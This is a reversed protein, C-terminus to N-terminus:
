VLSQISSTSSKSLNDLPQALIVIMTLQRVAQRKSFLRRRRLSDSFRLLAWVSEIYKCRFIYPWRYSSQTSVIVAHFCCSQRVYPLENYPVDFLSNVVWSGFNMMAAKAAAVAFELLTANVIDISKILLRYRNWVMCSSIALM